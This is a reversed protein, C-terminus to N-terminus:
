YVRGPPTKNAIQLRHGGLIDDVWNGSLAGTYVLASGDAM